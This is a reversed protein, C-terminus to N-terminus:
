LYESLKDALDRELMSFVFVRDFAIDKLLDDAVMTSAWANGKYVYCRFSEPCGPGSVRERRVAVRDFM